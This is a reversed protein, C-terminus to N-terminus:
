AQNPHCPDSYQRPLPLQQINFNNHSIDTFLKYLFAVFGKFLIKMLKEFVEEAEQESRIDVVVLGQESKHAIEPVCGKMVIPFGINRVADPLQKKECILQERVVPIGYRGWFVTAEYETLTKRGERGALDVLNM